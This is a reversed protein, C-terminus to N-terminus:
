KKETESIAVIHQCCCFKLRIQSIKPLHLVCRLPNKLYFERRVLQFHFEIPITNVIERIYLYIISYLPSERLLGRNHRLDITHGSEYQYSKLIYQGFYKLIFIALLFLFM